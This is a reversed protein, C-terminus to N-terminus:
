GLHGVIERYKRDAIEPFMPGDEPRRHLCARARACAKCSRHGRRLSAAVINAEIRLSHGRPCHDKNSNQNKGHSVNDLNNERRTDYRLNSVHNNDKDGDCHCTDLGEPKPGLFAAAVLTHVFTPTSVGKKGSPVGVRWYGRKDKFQSLTRGKRTQIRGDKLTITQTPSKCEGSESVVYGEPLHPIQAWQRTAPAESAM